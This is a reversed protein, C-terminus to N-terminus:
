PIKPFKRIKGSVLFRLHFAKLEVYPLLARCGADLTLPSVKTAFILALSMAITYAVVAIPISELAVAWLLQPRPAAPAPFGTPIHGLPTLQYPALPSDQGTSLLTGAVVVLLEIPVPLPCRRSLWPKLGENNATLLLMTVLSVVVAAM